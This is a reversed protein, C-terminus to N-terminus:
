RVHTRPLMSKCLCHCRAYPKECGAVEVDPLPTGLPPAVTPVNRATLQAALDTVVVRATDIDDTPLEAGSWLAQLYAQDDHFETRDLRILESLQARNPALGIGRGVNRFLGTAKLYRFSLDAYDDLTSMQRDIRAAM